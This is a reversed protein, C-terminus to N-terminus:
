ENSNMNEGYVMDDKGENIYILSYIYVYFILLLGMIHYELHSHSKDSYCVNM